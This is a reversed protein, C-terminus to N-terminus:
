IGRAFALVAPQTGVQEETYDHGLSMEKQSYSIYIWQQQALLTRYNLGVRRTGQNWGDGTHHTRPSCSSAQDERGRQGPRRGGELKFADKRLLPLCSKPHGLPPRLLTHQAPRPKGQTDPVHGAQCVRPCHSVKVLGRGLTSQPKGMVPKLFLQDNGDLDETLLARAIRGWAHYKCKASYRM